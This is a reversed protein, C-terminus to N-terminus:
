VEIQEPIPPLHSFPAAEETFTPQPAFGSALENGPARHIKPRAARHRRIRGKTRKPNHTRVADHPHFPGWSAAFSRTEAGAVKKVSKKKPPTEEVNRQRTPLRHGTVFSVRLGEVIMLAVFAVGLGILIRFQISQAGYQALVLKWIEGWGAHSM